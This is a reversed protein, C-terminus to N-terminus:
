LKGHDQGEEGDARVSHRQLDAARTRLDQLNRENTARGYYREILELNHAILELNHAAWEENQKTALAYWTLNTFICAVAWALNTLIFMILLGYEM